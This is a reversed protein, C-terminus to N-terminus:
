CNVFRTSGKPGPGRLRNAPGAARNGAAPGFTGQPAPPGVPSDSGRRTQRPQGYPKPPSGRPSSTPHPPQPPLPRSARAQQVPEAQHIDETSAYTDYPSATAQVPASPAAQGRTLQEMLNEVSKRKPDLPPVTWAPEETNGPAGGQQAPVPKRKSTASASNALADFPSVFDFLSRRAPSPARQQNVPPQLESSQQSAEPPVYTEPVYYENEQPGAESPLFPGYQPSSGSVPQPLPAHQPDSYTYKPASSYVM